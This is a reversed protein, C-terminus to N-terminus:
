KPQHKYCYVAGKKQMKVRNCRQGNSDVHQCNREGMKERKERKKTILRMKEERVKSQGQKSFFDRQGDRMRRRGFSDREGPGPINKTEFQLTYRWLHKGDNGIKKGFADREGPGPFWTSGCVKCHGVNSVGWYTVGHYRSKSVYFAWEVAFNSLPSGGDPLDSDTSCTPCETTLGEETVKPLELINELVVPDIEKANLLVGSCMNCRHQKWRPVYWLKQDDDPCHYVDHQLNLMKEDGEQPRHAFCFDSGSGASRKCPEGTDERVGLCKKTM